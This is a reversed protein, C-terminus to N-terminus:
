VQILWPDTEEFAFPILNLLTEIDPIGSFGLLVTEHSHKTHSIDAIHNSATASESKVTKTLARIM